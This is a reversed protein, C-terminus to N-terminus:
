ALRASLDRRGWGSKLYRERKEAMTRDMHTELIVRVWPRGAKTSRVRGANHSALREDPKASSGIYLHNTLESRIVYVYYM